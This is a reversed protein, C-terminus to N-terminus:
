VGQALTAVLLAATAVVEADSGAAEMSRNNSIAVGLL